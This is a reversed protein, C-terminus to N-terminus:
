HSKPCLLASVNRSAENGASVTLLGTDTPGPNKYRPLFLRIVAGAGPESDITCYGGSRTVFSRVQSLGLGTGKGPEKTTFFPDFVKDRVEPTMGGGTDSVAILVYDGGATGSPADPPTDHFQCNRTEVTLRGAGAMADRANIALNVLANELEFPDILVPWLNPALRLTLEIRDGLMRWPLDALGSVIPNADTPRPDVPERRAFSLLRGILVAARECATNASAIFKQQRSTPIDLQQQLLALNAAVITLLNNFDHAIGATLLAVAEVKQAQHLQAELAAHQAVADRAQALAMQERQTRRLALLNLLIFGLVAPVAILVYGITSELWARLISAKTRGIAVYVPYTALRKYAVVNGPAHFPSGSAITGDRVREAIAKILEDQRGPASIAATEPYRALLTGDERLVSAVYEASGGLLGQYFSAFYDGSLAVVTIGAFSGDPGERRQSVTFYPLFEGTELSRARLAWIFTQVGPEQLTRFDERGSHDLERDIPFVRASVLARGNAGIVWAAAIQPVNEIQKAMRDHLSKERVLIESDSLGQLLDDIRGAALLHTDLIKTTNEEAV